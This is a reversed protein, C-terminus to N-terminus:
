NGAKAYSITLPESDFPNPDLHISLGFDVLREDGRMRPDLTALSASL